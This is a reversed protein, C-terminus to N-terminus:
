FREDQAGWYHYEGRNDWFGSFISGFPPDQMTSSEDTDDEDSDLIELGDDMYYVPEDGDHSLPHPHPHPHPHRLHHSHQSDRDPQSSQQQRRRQTSAASHQEQQELRRRKRGQHIRDQQQKATRASSRQKELEQQRQVEQHQRMKQRQQNRQQNRQQERQQERQQRKAAATKQEAFVRDYDDNRGTAADHSQQHAPRNYVNRGDPMNYALVPTIRKPITVTLILGGPFLEHSWQIRSKDVLSAPLLLKKEFAGRLEVRRSPHIHHQDALTPVLEKAVLYDGGRSPAGELSLRFNDARASFISDHKARIKVEFADEVEEVSHTRHLQVARPMSDEYGFGRRGRHGFSSTLSLVLLALRFNNAQRAM